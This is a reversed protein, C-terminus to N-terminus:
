LFEPPIPPAEPIPTPNTFRQVEQLFESVRPPEASVARPASNAIKEEPRPIQHLPCRVEKHPCWTCQDGEVPYALSRFLDPSQDIFDLLTKIKGLMDRNAPRTWNVEIRASRQAARETFLLVTKPVETLLAYSGMQWLYEVSVSIPLQAVFKLDILVSKDDLMLDISGGFGSVIGTRGVRTPLWQSNYAKIEGLWKRTGRPYWHDVAAVAANGVVDLHEDLTHSSQSIERCRAASARLKALEEPPRTLLQAPVGLKIQTNVHALSGFDAQYTPRKRAAIDDEPHDTGYVLSM